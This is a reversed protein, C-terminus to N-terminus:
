MCLDPDERSPLFGILNTKSPIEENWITIPTKLCYIPRVYILDQVEWEGFQLGAVTYINEKTFKKIYSNRFDVAPVEINNIQGFLFAVLITEIIVLDYYTDDDSSGSM